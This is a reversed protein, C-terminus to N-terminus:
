SKMNIPELYTDNSFAPHPPPWHNNLNNNFNVDEHAPTFHNNAPLVMVDNVPDHGPLNVTNLAEKESESTQILKQLEERKRRRFFGCKWLIIGLLYLLLLGSVISVALIWIKFGKKGVREANIYTTATANKDKSLSIFKDSYPEFLEASSIIRLERKVELDKLISVKVKYNITIFFQEDVGLSKIPCTINICGSETCVLEVARYSERENAAFLTPGATTRFGGSSISTYTWRCRSMPPDVTHNVYAIYASMPFLIVIQGRPYLSPGFNKVGYVHKVYQWEPETIKPDLSFLMQAPLSADSIKVKSEMRVPVMVNVRNNELDEDESATTAVVTFNYNELDDHHFMPSYFRISFIVEENKELPSEIDCEIRATDNVTDAENQSLCTVGNKGMVRRVRSFSISDPFTLTVVTLYATEGTNYLDVEIEFVPSDDMVLYRDNQSYRAVAMLNIDSNCVNNSGCSRDYMAQTKFTQPHYINLVACIDCHRDVGTTGPKIVHDLEMQLPTIVDRSKRTFIAIEPMCDMDRGASLRMPIKMSVLEQSSGPDQLFLRRRVNRHRELTDVKLIVDIELTEPVNIGDYQACIRATICIAPAGRYLCNAQGDPRIVRPRIEMTVQLNIVPQTRLLVASDSSFAGILVDVYQNKDVDVPRSISWGFSSLRSSLDRAAVRQSFKKHLGSKAGNYIYVVGRGGDEFPAGVAIDQYGDRNVDGINGVTTGFRSAPTNSGSLEAELELNFFEKNIYVYVQGEDTVESFLPAGVILDDLGDGNLDAACLSAGFYSGFQHGELVLMVDFNYDYIFVKGKNEARPGGAIIFVADSSLHATTIAYGIYSNNFIRRSPEFIKPRSQHGGSVRIVGGTWDNLGPSGMVLFEGDKSYEASFGMAGMGYMYHGQTHIQKRFSELVPWSSSENFLLQGTGEYCLGNMFEHGQVFFERDRWRPACVVVGNDGDMNIDLTAGLWQKNKSHHLTVNKWKPVIQRINGSDDVNVRECSNYAWSCKYLVGPRDLEPLDADDALPAGILMWMEQYGHYDLYESLIAVTYGFYSGEPGSFFKPDRTDINFANVNTVTVTGLFSLLFGVCACM